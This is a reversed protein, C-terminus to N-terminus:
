FKEYSGPNIVLPETGAAGTTNRSTVGSKQAMQRITNAASYSSMVGGAVSEFRFFKLNELLAATQSSMEEATAALEEAASATQETTQNLRGMSESIQKAAQSQEESAERVAVGKRATEQMSD